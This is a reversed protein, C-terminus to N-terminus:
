IQHVDAEELGYEEYYERQWNNAPRASIPRVKGDRLTFVVFLIRGASTAGVISFREEAAAPSVQVGMAAAPGLWFVEEIEAATVGHKKASKTRNGADWDFEFSVADWLWLALWEAFKFKAM